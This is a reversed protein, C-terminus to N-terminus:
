QQTIRISTYDNVWGPRPENGENYHGTLDAVFTKTKDGFRGSEVLQVAVSVAECVADKCGPNQSEVTILEEDTPRMMGDSQTLTFRLNWSM